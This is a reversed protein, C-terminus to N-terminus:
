DTRYSTRGEWLLNVDLGVELIFALDTQWVLRGTGGRARVEVGGFRQNVPLHYETPMGARWQILVDDLAAGDSGTLRM